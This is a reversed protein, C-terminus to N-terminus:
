GTQTSDANPAEITFNKGFTVSLEPVLNLAAVTLSRNAAEVRDDPMPRREGNRDGSTRTLSRNAAEVRRM